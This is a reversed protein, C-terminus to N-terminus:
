QEHAFRIEVIEERAILTVKGSEDGWRDILVMDHDSSSAYYLGVFKTSDRLPDKFVVQQVRLRRSEDHIQRWAVAAALGLALIFAVVSWRFLASPPATRLSGVVYSRVFASATLPLIILSAMLALVAGERINDQVPLQRVFDWPVGLLRFRITRIADGLFYLVATGCAVVLASDIALSLPRRLQSRM